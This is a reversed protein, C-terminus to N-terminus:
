KASDELTSLFSIASDLDSTSFVTEVDLSVSQGFLYNIDVSHLKGDRFTVWTHVRAPGKSTDVTCGDLQTCLRLLTSYSM